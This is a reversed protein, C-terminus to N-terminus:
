AAFREVFAGTTADLRALQADVSRFGNELEDIYVEETFCAMKLSWVAKYIYIYIYM